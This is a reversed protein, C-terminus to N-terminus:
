DRRIEEFIEPGFRLEGTFPEIAKLDVTQKAKTLTIHPQYDPWDWSAGRDRIRINRWELEMSAFKLAIVGDPGIPEVVRPGGAPVVLESGFAEGMAMWDVATTSYAITVHLQEAPELDTLGQAKAWRLLEAANTVRRSVYLSRPTIAKAEDSPAADGPKAPAAAPAPETGTPAMTAPQWVEDMDPEDDPNWGDDERVENPTLWGPQSNNGLAARYYETREKLSGRLLESSDIRCRYGDRWEDSTLLQMEVASAVMKYLPQLSFRVHAEIFATASAFTPSQDGAHGLMLPFIGLLRAVEEIQHKRTNLHEADVGSMEIQKYDLGGSAIPIEGTNATGGFTSRWHARLDNIQKETLRQDTRLLGSPRAGNAHFRAQTEETAQALGLAERGVVSPDLGKYFHWSPGQLHFIQSADLKAYQGKEFTVDFTKESFQDIDITVSEPRFPLLERVQGNVVNKYAVGNGTACTHMLMTRWFQYSDQVGSARRLLIEYLPHDTAPEAGRGGKTQRYIEIPLQAVGEALIVVGRYFATTQLATNVSVKAGSKTPLGWGGNIANWLAPEIEVSMKGEAGGFLSKVSSWLSM